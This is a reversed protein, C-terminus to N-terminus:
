KSYKNRLEKIDDLSLGTYLSILNNELGNEILNIAIKEIGQQMGQEMGQQMGQEMGQRIGQEMGKEIGEEFGDEFAEQKWVLKADELNFETYLMNVVESGNELLFDKLIDKEICEKIAMKICHELLDGKEMSNKYEEMYKRVLYVFYSYGNLTNSKEVVSNNVEYNINIVDVVLELKVNEKNYFAESLYLKNTKPYEREGNYLVIFEPTPIKVLKSKYINKNDLIREYERAIYMLFRLPMNNNISSQHEILVVLKDNITFCLDNNREMFLINELTIINIETDEVNYNTGKIANYLKVIEEKNSFLKVFVSDKYARNISM